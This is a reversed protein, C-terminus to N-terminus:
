CCKREKVVVERKNNLEINEFYKSSQKEVVPEIKSKEQQELM